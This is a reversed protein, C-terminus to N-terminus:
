KVVPLISQLIKQSADALDNLLFDIESLRSELLNPDAPSPLEEVLSRLRQARPDDQWEPPLAQLLAHLRATWDTNERM